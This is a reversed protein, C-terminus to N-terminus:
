SVIVMLNRKNAISIIEIYIRSRNPDLLWHVLDSLALGLLATAFWPLVAPWPVFPWAPWILLGLYSVRILTGVVPTHSWSSRHPIVKAYPWWIMRWALGFLGGATKRANHFAISGGEVDLDPNVLFGLAAGASLAISHGIPLGSFLAVAGVTLTLATNFKNHTRGHAM